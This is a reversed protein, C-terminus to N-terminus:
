LSVSGVHMTTLMFGSVAMSIGGMVGVDQVQTKSHAPVLHEYLTETTCQMGRVFCYLVPVQYTPSLLINYEVVLSERAGPAPM